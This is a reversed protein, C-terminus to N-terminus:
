NSNNTMAQISQFFIQIFLKKNPMALPCAYNKTVKISEVMNPSKESIDRCM